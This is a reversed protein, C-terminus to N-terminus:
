CTVGFRFDEAVAVDDGAWDGYVEAIRRAATESGVEGGDRM